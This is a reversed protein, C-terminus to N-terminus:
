FTSSLLSYDFEDQQIKTDELAM